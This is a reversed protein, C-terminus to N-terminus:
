KSFIAELVKFIRSVMLESENPHINKKGFRAVYQLPNLVNLEEWDIFECLGHEVLFRITNQDENMEKRNIILLPIGHNLAESVTGWGAKTIVLDSAAVYNQSETYDQLIKVVNPHHSIDMNSSVVFICNQEWLRLKSMDGPEMRMGLPIFIIKKNGDPNIESKIRKVEQPNTERSFFCFSDNGKRGWLSEDGGALSFFYDMKKYQNFIARLHKDDIVNRYATWWTFNSIGITPVSLREGIELAVPAIDSLIGDVKFPRM